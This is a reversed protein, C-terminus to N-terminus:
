TVTFAVTASAAAGGGNKVSVNVTGASPIWSPFVTVVASTPSNVQVRTETVTGFIVSMGPAFGTGTLTMDFAPSGHLKTNPNLSTLTPAAPPTKYALAVAYIADITSRDGEWVGPILGSKQQWAYLFAPDAFGTSQTEAVNPGSPAVFPDVSSTGLDSLPPVTPARLPM